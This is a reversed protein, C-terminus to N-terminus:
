LERVRRETVTTGTREVCGGGGCHRDQDGRGGRRRLVPDERVHLRLGKPDPLGPTQGTKRVPDTLSWLEQPRPRVSVWDLVCEEVEDDM